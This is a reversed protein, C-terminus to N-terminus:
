TELYFTKDPSPSMNLGTYRSPHQNKTLYMPGENPIPRLAGVGAKPHCIMELLPASPAACLIGGEAPLVAENPIVTAPPLCAPSLARGARDVEGRFIEQPQHPRRAM